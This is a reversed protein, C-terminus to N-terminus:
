TGIIFGLILVMARDTNLYENTFILTNNKYLKILGNGEKATQGTQVTATALPKPMDLHNPISSVIAAIHIPPSITEILKQNDFTIISFFQSDFCVKGMESSINKIKTTETSIGVPTM